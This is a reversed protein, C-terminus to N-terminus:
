LAQIAALKQNNLEEAEVALPYAAELLEIIKQDDTSSIAAGLYMTVKQMAHEVFYPDIPDYDEDSGDDDVFDDVFDEDKEEAGM